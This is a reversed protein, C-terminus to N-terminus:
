GHTLSKSSECSMCRCTTSSCHTLLSISIALRGNRRGTNTVNTRAVFCVVLSNYLNTLICSKGLKINVNRCSSSGEEFHSDALHSSHQVTSLPRTKIFKYLKNTVMECIPMPM